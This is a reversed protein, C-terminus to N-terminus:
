FYVLTFGYDIKSLFFSYKGLILFYDNVAGREDAIFNSYDCFQTSLCQALGFKPYCLRLLFCDVALPREGSGLRGATKNQGIM